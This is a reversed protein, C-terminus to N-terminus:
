ICICVSKYVYRYENMYCRNAYLYEYIFVYICLYMHIGKVSIQGSISAPNSLFFHENLYTYIDENMYCKNAYLYEYIFVYICLYM